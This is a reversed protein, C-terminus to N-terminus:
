DLRFEIPLFFSVDVNENKNKGPVWEKPLESILRLAEKDMDFAVGKYVKIDSIEGDKSLRAIIFEKGETGRTKSESPYKMNDKIFRKYRTTGGIFVPPSDPIDETTKGDVIIKYGGFTKSEINFILEKKSYDYKQELNGEMDYFEWLGVKKDNDYQGKEIIKKKMTLQYVGHKVKPNDKLVYYSEGKKEKLITEQGYSYSSILISIAIIRIKM